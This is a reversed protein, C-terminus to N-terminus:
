HCSKASSLSSGQAALLDLRDMRFSILGPIAQQHMKYGNEEKASLLLHKRSGLRTSSRQEAALKERVGGWKRSQLVAAQAARLDGLPNSAKDERQAKIAM